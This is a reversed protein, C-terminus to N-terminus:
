ETESTLADAVPNRPFLADISPPPGSARPQYTPLTDAARQLIERRLEELCKRAETLEADAQEERVELHDLRVQSRGTAKRLQEHEQQSKSIVASIKRHADLDTLVTDFLVDSMRWQPIDLVHLGPIAPRSKRAQEVLMRASDAQRQAAALSSNDGQALSQDALDMMRDAKQLSALVCSEDKIEGQIERYRWLAAKCAQEAQDEEPHMPTPGDFVREYLHDLENRLRTHERCIQTLNEIKGETERMQLILLDREVRLGQEEAFTDLYIREQRQKTESAVEEDSPPHILRSWMRKHKRNKVETWTRYQRKTAAEAARLKRNVDELRNQALELQVQTRKMLPPAYDVAEIARLLNNHKAVQVALGNSM